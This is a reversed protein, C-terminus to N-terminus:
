CGSSGTSGGGGCDVTGTVGSSRASLNARTTECRVSCPKVRTSLSSRFAVATSSRWPFGTFWTRCKRSIHKVHPNHIIGHITRVSFCCFCCLIRIETSWYPFRSSSLIVTEHSSKGARNAGNCPPSAWPAAHRPGHECEEAPMRAFSPPHIRGDVDDRHQNPQCYSFEELM